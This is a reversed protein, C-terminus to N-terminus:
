AAGGTTKKYPQLEQMEQQIEQTEIVPPKEIPPNFPASLDLGSFRRGLSWTGDHTIFHSASFGRVAMWMHLRQSYFGDPYGRKVVELYQSGYWLTLLPGFIGIVIWAQWMRVAAFVFAGVVSFVVFSAISIVKAESASMGHLIPPEANIRDTLPARLRQAEHMAHATTNESPRSM